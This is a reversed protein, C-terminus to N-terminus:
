LQKKIELVSRDWADKKTPAFGNSAKINKNEHDIYLAKIEYLKIKKGDPLEVESTTFDGMSVIVGTALKESMM